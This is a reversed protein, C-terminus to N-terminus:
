PLEAAANWPSVMGLIVESVDPELKAALSAEVQDAATVHAAGETSRTCHAYSRTVVVAYHGAHRRHAASVPDRKEVPLMRAADILTKPKPRCPATTFATNLITITGQSPGSQTLV